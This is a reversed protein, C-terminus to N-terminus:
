SIFFGSEVGFGTSLLVWFLKEQRYGTGMPVWFIKRAPVRYGDTGLFNKKGTGPVWQYGFKRFKSSYWQRQGQEILLILSLLRFPIISYTIAQAILYIKM